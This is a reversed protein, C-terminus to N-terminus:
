IYIEGKLNSNCWVVIGMYSNKDLEYDIVEYKIFLKNIEISVIRKWVDVEEQNYFTSLKNFIKKASNLNFKKININNGVKIM